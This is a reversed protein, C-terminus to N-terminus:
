QMYELIQKKIQEALLGSQGMQYQYDGAKVFCDRIGIPFIPIHKGKSVFYESIAGFLGGYINHEEVIVLMRYRNNVEDLREADLPKITHMNIVAVSIDNEELAKAAQMAQYLVSGCAIICIDKGERLTIARGIRFDYDEKYIVPTGIPGTLRIYTPEPTDAVALLVKVIEMCDAPSIISINPLSRILAVDEVAMHTAGLIGAAYGATLGIFKIPLKMYSMNVRIQDLCRSVFSAYTTVFPILGEKAMGAAIGVMNQEAIGVNYLREPYSEKFRDLGSFYCLDATLMIVDQRTEALENAVAGVAGSPGSMSWARVKRSNYEIM